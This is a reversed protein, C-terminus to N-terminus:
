CTVPSQASKRLLRELASCSEISNSNPLSPLTGRRDCRQDDRQVTYEHPAQYRGGDDPYSDPLSKAYIMAACIAMAAFVIVVCRMVAARFSTGDARWWRGLIAVVFTAVTIGVIATVVTARAMVLRTEATNPPGGIMKDPLFLALLLGTLATSGFAAVVIQLATRQRM